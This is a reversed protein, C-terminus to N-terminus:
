TKTEPQATFAERLIRALDEKRYPKGLLRFGRTACESHGNLKSEPFGSTLVIKIAPWRKAALRALDMGNLKGPMVIDTFLLQISKDEALLTLANKANAAELVHYGLEILQRVVVRRMSENDEVVLITESGGVAPAPAAPKAEATLGGLAQRLYLRFTTGVGTESYVNIHGGSQKIFGFVMALGLGTGKGREKTTFFPEFIRAVIEPPMGTGTDTVEIMVYDGPSVDPHQAVYDQDLSVNKTAIILHGGHPMAARANTSLNTLTAELQAPDVVVDWLDPALHLVIQIDEGLIRALLKSINEVLNNVRIRQPKLPQKRAFALLRRTLDSGRLAADLAASALTKSEEDKGLREELLDLNGIIVGLLNNFDHGMGGTLNGIAEMKQAQHLKDESETLAESTRRIEETNDQFAQLVQALKGIEDQRYAPPEYSSPKGATVSLLAGVMDNIPRIVRYIVVSFSYFCLVLALILLICHYIISQRAQSELDAVYNQTQKLVADKLTYLSDTTQSSLDLWFELSLPYLGKHHPGPIYFIDRVMDYVTFYHSKADKFYPEIAPFLNGQIALTGSNAWSIDIAGQWELLAIQQQPTPDTNEAILESIISRERGSYEMIQSLLYKFRMHLVVKADMAASNRIFEMWLDQTQLILDTTGQFWNQSLDRPRGSLPYGIAQDVDQRLALLNQYDKETKQNQTMVGPFDYQKLEELAPKLTRDVAERSNMLSLHLSTVISPDSSHLMAFTVDREVSLKESADFLQDSIAAAQQLSHIRSLQGWERYISEVAMLTILLTLAGITLLLLNRISLMCKRM